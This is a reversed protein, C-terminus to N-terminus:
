EVLATGTTQWDNEILDCGLDRIVQTSELVTTLLSKEPLTRM